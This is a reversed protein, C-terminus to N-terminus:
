PKNKGPKLLQSIKDALLKSYAGSQEFNNPQCVENLMETGKSQLEQPSGVRGTMLLATVVWGWANTSPDPRVKGPARPLCRAYEAMQERTERMYIELWDPSSSSKLLQPVVDGLWRELRLFTIQHRPYVRQKWGNLGFAAKLGVIVVGLWENRRHLVRSKAVLLPLVNQEFSAVAKDCGCGPFPHKFFESEFKALANPGWPRSIHYSLPRRNVKLPAPPTSIM